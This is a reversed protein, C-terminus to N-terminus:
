PGQKVPEQAHGRAGSLLPVHGLDFQYCAFCANPTAAPSEPAAPPSADEGWREIQYRETRM